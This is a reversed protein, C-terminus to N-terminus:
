YWAYMGFGKRGWFLCWRAAAEVDEKHGDHDEGPEIAAAAEQLSKGYSVLARATHDAYAAEKLEESIPTRALIKGRFSTAGALMGVVAGMGGQTKALALVYKGRLADVCAAGGEAIVEAPLNLDRLNALVWADAEADEGVRPAGVAEGTSLLLADIEADIADVRAADYAGEVERLKKLEARLRRVEVGKGPKPPSAPIWDLGM